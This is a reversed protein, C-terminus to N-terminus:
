RDGRDDRRKNNLTEPEKILVDNMRGAIEKVASHIQHLNEKISSVDEAVLDNSIRDIRVATTPVDYKKALVYAVCNAHFNNDSAKYLPDNRAFEAHALAHAVSVFLVEFDMGRKAYICRDASDYYAGMSMNSPYNDITTISVPSKHVLARIIFKNDYSVREDQIKADTDNIDFLYKVNYYTREEGDSNKGSRPELIMIGKSGEHISIGEKNWSSLDKVKTAKPRQAYILINNNTSYKEFKSLVDLFRMFKIYDQSFGKCSENILESCKERNQKTQGSKDTISKDGVKNKPESTFNNTNESNELMEDLDVIDISDNM